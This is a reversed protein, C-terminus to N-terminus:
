RSEGRQTLYPNVRYKEDGIKLVMRPDKWWGTRFLLNDRWCWPPNVGTSFRSLNRYEGWLTKDAANVVPRSGSGFFGLRYRYKTKVEAFRDTVVYDAYDFSPARWTDAPLYSAYVIYRTPHIKGPGYQGHGRTESYVDQHEKPAAEGARSQEMRLAGNIPRTDDGGLERTAISPDVLVEINAEAEDDLGRTVRVDDHALTLLAVVRETKREVIVTCGELDGTHGFAAKWDEAKFAAYHLFYHTSTTLITWYVYPRLDLTLAENAGSNTVRFVGPADVARQVLNRAGPDLWADLVHNRARKNEDQFQPPVPWNPGARTQDFDYRVFFDKWPRFADARGGSVDQWFVPSYREALQEFRRFLAPRLRQLNQQEEVTVDSDDPSDARSGPAGSAAPAPAMTPPTAVLVPGETVTVPAPPTQPPAAPTAVGQGGGASVVEVQVRQSAWEVKRADSALLQRMSGRLGNEQVADLPALSKPLQLRVCDDWRERTVVAVITSAGFPADATFQYRSGRAPIRAQRFAPLANDKEFDNPFLQTVHRAPDIDFIYLYGPRESEVALEMQEGAAFEYKNVELFVNFAPPADLEGIEFPAPPDFFEAIPARAMTTSGAIAPTQSAIGQALLDERAQRFLSAWSLVRPWGAGAKKFTRLLAATLAGHRQGEFEGLDSATQRWQAAAIFVVQSGMDLSPKRPRLSKFPSAPLPANDYLSRGADADGPLARLGNGSHCSDFIVALRRGPLPGLARAIEDDTLLTPNPEYARPKPWPTADYPVLAEDFREDANFTSEDGDVDTVLWGHGSYHLVIADGPKTRGAFGALAQLIAQKTAQEDALLQVNGAPVGLDTTLVRRISEADNVAGSLHRVNPYTDIGILLAHVAARAQPAPVPPRASVPSLTLCAVVIWAGGLLWVETRFM